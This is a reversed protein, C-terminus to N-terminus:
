GGGGRRLFLFFFSGKAELQVGMNRRRRYRLVQLGAEGEAEATPCVGRLRPAAMRRTLRSPVPIREFSSVGDM